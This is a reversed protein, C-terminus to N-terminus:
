FILFALIYSDKFYRDHENTFFDGLVNIITSAGIIIGIGTIVAAAWVAVIGFSCISLVISAAGTFLMLAVKLMSVKEKLFFIIYGM